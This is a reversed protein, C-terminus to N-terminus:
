YQKIIYIPRKRTENITKEFYLSLITITLFLLSFSFSILLIISTYGSPPMNGFLFMYLTYLSFVSTFLIFMVSIIMSIRLPKNSFAFVANFALKLLSYYSYNSEGFARAPAEFPLVIKNFGISQIFGRIFRTQERYDTKLINAVQKSILFFDTSNHQFEVTSLANILRYFSISMKKKLWSNDHRQTREMLVIDCGEDFSRVINRIESAPHQGDSDMCIVADGSAHDLGAIMAAEHGFNKSFTLARHEIHESPLELLIADIKEQTGDTSGDNVWLLEFTLHKLKTLENNLGKWFHVIVEEENFLSIVISIKKKTM